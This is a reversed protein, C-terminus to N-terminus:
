RSRTPASIATTMIPRSIVMEAKRSHIACIPAWLLTATDIIPLAVRELRTHGYLRRKAYRILESPTRGAYLGEGPNNPVGPIFHGAYRAGGWLVALGIVALLFALCLLIGLRKLRSPRKGSRSAATEPAM